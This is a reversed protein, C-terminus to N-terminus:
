PLIVLDDRHVMPMLQAMSTRTESPREGLMEKWSVNLWVSDTAIDWDWITLAAGEMALNVREREHELDTNARTVEDRQRRLQVFATGLLLAAVPLIALLFVDVPGASAIRDLLEGM